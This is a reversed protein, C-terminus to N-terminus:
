FYFPFCFVHAVFRFSCVTNLDPKTVLFVFREVALEICASHLGPAIEEPVHDECAVKEINITPLALM